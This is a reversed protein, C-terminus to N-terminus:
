ARSCIFGDAVQGAASCPQASRSAMHEGSSCVFCGRAAPQTLRTWPWKGWSYNRVIGGGHALPRPGLGLYGAM